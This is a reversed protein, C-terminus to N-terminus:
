MSGNSLRRAAEITRGTRIVGLHFRDAGFYRPIEATATHTVHVSPAAVCVRSTNGTSIRGRLKNAEIGPSHSERQSRLKGTAFFLWLRKM